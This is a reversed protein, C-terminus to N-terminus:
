KTARLMERKGPPGPPREVRLGTAELDRRVQGQACYTVLVGNPRLAAFVRAFVAPTWLEPQIKPAFADFYILDFAERDPLDLLSAHRKHLRIDTALEVTQGWPTQHALRAASAWDEQTGTPAPLTDLRLTAVTSADLPYAELATYDLGLRHTKAFATSCLLNLGTGFGVDLVSVQNRHTALHALGAGVFVHQTEQLAGHTSHYSAGFREAFVSPSGDDTLYVRRRDSM